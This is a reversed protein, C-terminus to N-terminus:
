VLKKYLILYNKNKLLDNENNKVVIPKYGSKNWFNLGLVNEKLVSIYIIKFDSDRLKKEIEYLVNSGIGRNCFKEELLFIKIWVSKKKNELVGSIVGIVKKYKFICYNFAENKVNLLYKKKMDHLSTIRENGIAFRVNYSNYIKLMNKLHSERIFGINVSNDCEIIYNM